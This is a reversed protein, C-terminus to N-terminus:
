RLQHPKAPGCLLMLKHSPGTLSQPGETVDATAWSLTLAHHADHFKALCVSGGGTGSVAPGGPSGSPSPLNQSGEATTNPLDLSAMPELLHREAGSSVSLSPALDVPGTQLHGVLAPM